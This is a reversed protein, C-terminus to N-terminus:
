LISKRKECEEIIFRCFNESANKKGERNICERINEVRRRDSLFIHLAEDVTFNDNAYMAVGINKLFEANMIEQGPIPNVMIMPLEKEIAESSTIGGPKTIICDAADMMLDVNDVYGFVKFDKKTNLKIIRNFAAKNNGCVVLGQFPIDISDIMQIVKDIRGYGMSGSMVLVTAMDPDLGLMERAQKKEISKSYKGDIPIGTPLMKKIDIGRKKGQYAIEEHPTVFYDIHKLDEWFPHITFDTIIGATLANTHQKERLANALGASLVHTCVIADPQWESIISDIGNSLVSHSFKMFSFRDEISNRKIAMKYWQGFVKPTYSSTLIYGNALADKLLPAIYEYADIMKCEIGMKEFTDKVANGTAHHGQGATISLLLARM